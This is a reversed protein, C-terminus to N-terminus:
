EVLLVTEMNGKTAVSYPCVQYTAEVLAQAAAAEVGPIHVRLVTHLGFALGDRKLSVEARVRSASTDIKQRRGVVGLASQFCAAYGAAFLQEPNTGPGGDGGMEAPRSLTLDLRGDDTAAHGTRGGEVTARATYITSDPTPTTM